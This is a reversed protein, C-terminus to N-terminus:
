EELMRQCIRKFPCQRCAGNNPAFDFDAITFQLCHSPDGFYISRSISHRILSLTYERMNEDLVHKHVRVPDAGVYALYAKISGLPFGLSIHPWLQYVGVQLDAQMTEWWSEGPPLGTKWDFVTFRADSTALALDVKALVQVNDLFFGPAHPGYAQPEIWVLRSAQVQHALDTDRAWNSFKEVWLQVDEFAVLCDCPNVDENYEHEFLVVRGGRRTGSRSCANKSGNWENVMKEKLGPLSAELPLSIGARLNRLYEAVASHFVDGDM